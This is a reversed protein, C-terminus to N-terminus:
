STSNASRSMIAINKLDIIEVNHSFDRYYESVVKYRDGYKSFFKMAAKQNKSLVSNLARGGKLFRMPYKTDIVYLCKKKHTEQKALNFFDIFLGNQRISEPGGQWNIFKYESVRKDTELDFDKGTNGAGLSLYSIREDQDLIYPLATLIGLAHVVVDIQSAAEKIRLAGKLAQQGIGAANLFGSVSDSDKTALQAEIEAIRQTLMSKASFGAVIKIAKELETMLKGRDKIIRPHTNRGSHKCSWLCMCKLMYAVTAVHHQVRLYVSFRKLGKM